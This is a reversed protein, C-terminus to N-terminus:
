SDRVRSRAIGVLAGRILPCGSCRRIGKGKVAMRGQSPRAKLHPSGTRQKRVRRYCCGPSRTQGSAARKSLRHCIQILHRETLPRGDRSVFLFSEPRPAPHMAIWARLARVTTPNLAVTRDKAGKGQRVMLTRSGFEVEEILLRRVEGQRLGADVMLLLMARNRGGELTLDCRGLVARLEEETPVTPLTQPTRVTLGALPDCTIVCM